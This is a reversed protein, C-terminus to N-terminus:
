FGTVIRYTNYARKRRKDIPILRDNFEDAVLQRLEVRDWTEPLNHKALKEVLDLRLNDVLDNVYHIQEKKTM